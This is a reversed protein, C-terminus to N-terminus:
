LEAVIIELGSETVEVPFRALPAQAPGRVVRGERDFTSGHCPCTLFERAPKVECGQHTCRASVAHYAASDIDAADNWMLLISEDGEQPQVILTGPSQDAAAEAHAALLRERPVVVRGRDLAGRYIPAAACGGGTAIGTAAALTALVVSRCFGRRSLAGDDQTAAV